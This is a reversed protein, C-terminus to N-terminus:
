IRFELNLKGNEMWVELCQSAVTKGFEPHWTAPALRWRGGAATMAITSGGEPLLRARRDEDELEVRVDPHLHFRAVAEGFAGRIEDRIVMRDPRISWTRRHVPAGPLRRYGDHSCAVAIEGDEARIRLDRPYARRAVRFGSWVESSDRGDITVTNHAATGRQRLREKGTGYCSTGSDVIVRRGDVSLEFSLTDAHAHGPLYDPGIPAVDLFATFPGNRVRVYGSRALHELGSAPEAPPPLGLRGAYAGLRALNAAGGIAADNFLVIEGDPHSMAALWRLMRGAAERWCDLMAAGVLGTHSQGLNVLDLLDEVVIAHYMPSREFHGGDALIQEPLQAALIELGRRRWRDAEPGAFYAGAFVLAKANALLHNGLLHFELRKELWRAQVALSRTMGAPAVATRWAWKFWNVLRLSTPYPDWGIGRGPPNERMWRAMLERHRWSRAEAGEANLDDFYHLHYRWLAPRAPDNWDAASQLAHTENLFCFRNLGFLSQPRRVPTALRGAERRVPPAASLDPRPRVLSKGLRGYIQVPKLYRLTHWYLKLQALMSPPAM